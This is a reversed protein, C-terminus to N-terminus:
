EDETEIAEIRTEGGCDNCFAGKDFTSAVQWEQDGFSWSAYADALVDDSGCTRCVMRTKAM